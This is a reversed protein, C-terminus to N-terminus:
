PRENRPDRWDAPCAVAQCVLEETPLWGGSSQTLSRFRYNIGPELGEFLASRRDGAPQLGAVEAEGGRRLTIQYARLRRLDDKGDYSPRVLQEAGALPFRVAQDRVFGGKYVTCEIQEAADAQAALTGAPSRWPLRVGSLRRRDETSTEESTLNSAGAGARLALVRPRESQAGPPPQPPAAVAAPVPGGASCSSLAFLVLLSRFFSSVPASGGISERALGFQHPRLFHGARLFRDVQGSRFKDPPFDSAYYAEMEERDLCAGQKGVLPARTMMHIARGGM